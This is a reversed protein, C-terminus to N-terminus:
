LIQSMEVMSCTITWPLQIVDVQEMRPRYKLFDDALYLSYGTTGNEESPTSVTFRTDGISGIFTDGTYDGAAPYEDPATALEDKLDNIWSDYYSAMDSDGKKKEAEYMDIETQIDEKTRKDYDYEYIGKDKDLVAEVTEKKSDNTTEKKKFSAVYLDGTDPVIVEEADIAIKQIGSDGTAIETDCSEPIGYKGQLSGSDANSGSGGNGEVDYDIDKKGCGTVATSVALMGVLLCAAMKKRYVRFREKNNKTKNQM